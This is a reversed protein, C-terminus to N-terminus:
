RTSAIRAPARLDGRQQPRVPRQPLGGALKTWTDGGDTSKYIGGEQAGSIITWPKRQGHWMCAFIM